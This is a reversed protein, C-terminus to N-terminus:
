YKQHFIRTFVGALWSWQKASSLHIYETLITEFVSFDHMKKHMRSNRQNQFTSAYFSDVFLGLIGHFYKFSDLISNFVQLFHFYNHFITLLVGIPGFGLCGRSQQLTSRIRSPTTPPM